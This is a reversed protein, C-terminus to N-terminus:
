TMGRSVLRYRACGAHCKFIQWYKVSGADREGGDRARKRSLRPKEIAFRSGAGGGRPSVAFCRCVILSFAEVRRPDNRHMKMEARYM